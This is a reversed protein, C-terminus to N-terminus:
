KNQYMTPLILCVSISKRLYKVINQTDRFCHLIYHMYVNLCVNKQQYQQQQHLQQHPPQQEHQQQLMMQQQVM